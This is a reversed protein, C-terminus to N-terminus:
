KSVSEYIKAKELLKVLKTGYPIMYIEEKTFIKLLIVSFFYIVMAFIIAIITAIKESIIGILLLFSGYSCIGMIITALIPKSLFKSFTLELHMHKRLITFGITLAIAHCVATAIAAGAAGIQPIPVLVINLICKVAVGITLAITPVMVKGLGQLAGNVTQELVTFIITIASMQLIFGGESVNPFLLNLIPQAFIILGIMCPLGIIMTVLLSFSVRKEATKMDNKAKAAAIAPVLATSFAINFSLPLTALMNAKGTLIGLQRMAEEHPLFKELGGMVTVTDVNGNISTLISSLSMPISVCLIQKVIYFASERRRTPKSQILEQAIQTRRVKYYLYLYLFSVITSLTTALNAGAAMFERSGSAIAIIDVLLITLITKCLQEITQSHATTKMKQKANFYGRFVSIIAVFFIAPSLAVLTLEAEPIKIWTNAIYGAGTFLLMSGAFGIIAFTCLAIKFVRHAGRYDGAAEKESVLKSIASPVGTSSLTLLLAYISYGANRIANGEDGFGPKNTLYWNYVLGLVKILVQSFMLALVGQMFSEKKYSEKEKKRM